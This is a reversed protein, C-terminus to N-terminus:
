WDFGKLSRYGAWEQSVRLNELFIGPLENLDAKRILDTAEPSLVGGTKSEALKGCELIIRNLRADLELEKNLYV